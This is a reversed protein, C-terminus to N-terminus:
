CSIEFNWFNQRLSTIKGIFEVYFMENESTLSCFGLWIKFILLNSFSNSSVMLFCVVSFLADEMFFCLFFLLFSCCSYCRETYFSIKIKLFIAFVNICWHVGYWGLQSVTIFVSNLFKFTLQAVFETLLLYLEGILDIELKLIGTCNAFYQYYLSHFSVWNLFFSCTQVDLDFWSKTWFVCSQKGKEM